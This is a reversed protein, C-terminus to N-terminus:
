GICTLESEKVKNVTRTEVKIEIGIEIEVVGSIDVDIIMVVEWINYIGSCFLEISAVVMM